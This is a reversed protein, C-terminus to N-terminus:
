AETSPPSLWPPGPGDWFGEPAPGRKFTSSSFGVFYFANGGDAFFPGCAIIGGHVDFAERKVMEAIEVPQFRAKGGAHVQDRPGVPVALRVEQLRHMEEGERMRAAGALVLLQDGPVRGLVRAEHDPALSRDASSRVHLRQLVALAAGAHLDRALLA